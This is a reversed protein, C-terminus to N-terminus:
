YESSNRPLSNIKLKLGSNRLSGDIMDTFCEDRTAPRGLRLRDGTDREARTAGGYRGRVRCYGSVTALSIIHKKNM